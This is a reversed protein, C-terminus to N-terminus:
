RGAPGVVELLRREYQRVVVGMAFRQAGRRAAAAMALRRVPDGLLEGVVDAMLAVSAEHLVVGTVQDEVVEAVGGLPYTVVPCGAMAAEIVVGPIGEDDSTLVLVDLGALIFEVDSRHGLFSVHELLRRDRVEQRVVGALPGSGAVVLHADVGANRLTALLEVARIPRKQDVLFGVLGVLAVEAGVGLETRLRAAATEHELGAFRETRRANPILWVPGRYRLPRLEEGLATTLAVVGDIRRVALRWCAGRVSGFSRPDLALIRQWVIAPGRRPSALVAVLAAAAGHAFIADVPRRRLDQRLRWAARVLLFPRQDAKSVLPVLREYRDGGHGLGVALLRNHHGLVDLEEALELAVQEAGRRHSRGVLHLIRM